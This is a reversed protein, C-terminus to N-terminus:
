FPIDDDEEFPEVQREYEEIFGVLAIVHAFILRAENQGIVTENPHALSQDNRIPNFAELTSISSRLIRLTMETPSGASQQLKTYLGMLSHLPVNEAPITGSRKQILLRLYQTVFTHLRDIGSEFRGEDIYRKVEDRVRTFTAHTNGVNLIPLTDVENSTRLRKIIALCDARDKDNVPPSRYTEPYREEWQLLADLAKAVTHSDEKTWLTRLRNAKSPGYIEYAKTYLDIGTADQILQAFNQNSLDLVYGTRMGLLYELIRKEQFNLKAMVFIM